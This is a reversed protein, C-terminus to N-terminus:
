GARDEPILQMTVDGSFGYVEVCGTDDDRNLGLAEATEAPIKQLFLAGNAQIWGIEARHTDNFVNIYVNGNHSILEVLTPKGEQQGVALFRKFTM